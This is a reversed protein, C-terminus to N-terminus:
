GLRQYESLTQKRTEFRPLLRTLETIGLIPYKGAWLM